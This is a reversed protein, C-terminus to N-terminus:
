APYQCNSKILIGRNNWWLVKNRGDEKMKRLIESVVSFHKYCGTDIFTIVIDGDSNEELTCNQKEFLINRMSGLTVKNGDEKNYYNEGLEKIFYEYALRAVMICYFGFDIREPDKGSIEDIFYSYVLDKLGNEIIWRYRYKRLIDLAKLTMDTTGFLRINEHTKKERLIVISMQLKTNPLVVNHLKYEDGNDDERLDFWGDMNSLAPKILKAIQKNQKLCVYIEGNKFVIKKFYHFDTEKTYESDMYIELIARPDIIPYIYKECFHRIIKPSRVSGQFYAISIIVNAALDWVVHPRFGPVLNNAKNPGKGIGKEEANYGFFDKFHFDFALKNGEILNLEKARAVLDCKMDYISEFKFEITDEYYKSSSGFMGIGSALAVSRDRNNNLHNIRKYGSLIRFVNLLALNTIEIGRLKPPGYTRFAQVIGLENVFPALILPGPDCIHYAHTKMKKCILEFHRNIRCTELIQKEPLLHYATKLGEFRRSQLKEDVGIFRDLAIPMRRKDELGWRRIVRNVVYRSCKLKNTDVIKQGSWLPHELKQLIIKLQLEDAISGKKGYTPSDLAAWPGYLRYDEVLRYYTTTPINYQVCADKVKLKKIFFLSRLLELKKHYPDQEVFFSNKRLKKDRGCLPKETLTKLESLTRQIRGWFDKDTELSSFGYGHSTLIKGIIKIDVTKEIIPVVQVIRLIAINSLSPRCKKIILVLTELSPEEKIGKWLVFLGPLGYNIFCEEMQYFFTRSINNERCVRKIPISALWVKRIAEYINIVPDNSIYYPIQSDYRAMDKTIQSSLLKFYKISSTTLIM